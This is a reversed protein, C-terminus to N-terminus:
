RLLIELEEPYINKGNQTVIVNKTRGTIYIFGDKDIYGVDGTYFWGDKLVKETAQKDEYYGLMVQPGKICLEGIAQENPSDVKIETEMVAKGASGIKTMTDPTLAAMPATETLGYGQLFLIGFDELAKGVKPDIPAAASVVIRIRGGLSSHIEEFIKRKIDVGVMKLGNTIHIMTGVITQKRSKKINAEIKKYLNEILVPVALMITPKIEQLNTAIYRLGECVAISAGNSIPILFGITSEYTHHLPLVSFFVDEKDMRVYSLAGYINSALNKQSLMVGKPSSTTGSTFLLLKFEEADFPLLMLSNDNKSVLEKGLKSVYEFGTDKIATTKDSYMEIFFDVTDMDAKIKNIDDRKKPSYILAKIGARNVLNLIEKAPLEKDIPVIISDTCMIAMYAVYWEYTNEGIIAIKARSINLGKYLGTGLNIVDERYKGYTIKEYELKHDFKEYFAVRDINELTSKDFMQKISEYKEVDHLKLKEEKKNKELSEDIKIDKLFDMNPMKIRPMKFRKIKFDKLIRM